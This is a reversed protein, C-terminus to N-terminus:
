QQVTYSKMVADSFDAVWFAFRNSLLRYRTTRWVEQGNVLFILDAGRKDLQILDFDREGNIPINGESFRSFPRSRSRGAGISYYGNGISHITFLLFDDPQFNWAIGYRTSGGRRTSKIAFSILFDRALDLGDIELEKSSFYNEQNISM